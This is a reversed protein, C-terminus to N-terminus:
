EFISDEQIHRQTTQYINLSMTSSRTAEMNLSGQLHCCYTEGLRKDVYVLRCLSVDWLVTNKM